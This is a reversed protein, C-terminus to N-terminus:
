ASHRILNKKNGTHRQSAQLNGCANKITVMGSPYQQMEAERPSVTIDIRSRCFFLKM